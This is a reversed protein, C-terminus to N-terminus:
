EDGANMAAEMAKLQDMAEQEAQKMALEAQALGVKIQSELMEPKVTGMMGAQGRGHNVMIQMALPLVAAVLATYPGVKMLPDIIGAISAERDALVALEHAINPFHAAIAGADAYNGTAILPVQALQGIGLVAEEREATKKSVPKPGAPKSVTTKAPPATVGNTIPM